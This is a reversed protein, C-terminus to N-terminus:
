FISRSNRAALKELHIRETLLYAEFEWCNRLADEFAYREAVDKFYNRSDVCASQGEVTFGNNMTIQCVTMRGSPMLTFTKGKIKALLAHLTVKM